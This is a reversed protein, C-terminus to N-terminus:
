AGAVGARDGLMEDWSVERRELIAKRGMLATLTAEVAQRWTHHPRQEVISRFFAAVADITIERRSERQEILSKDRLDDGHPHRWDGEPAHLRYYKRSTEIMGRSGFFQERVDRYGATFKISILWGEIGNPYVFAINHHDTKWDGYRLQYRLGGTGSCKVPHLDGAFWNMTDIGHCDQEVIPGGSYREWKAWNRTRDEESRDPAINQGQASALGGLVWFSTMLKVEGIRGNRVYDRATLYEPSYRQQFGFQITKRTDAKRGVESVRLCGAIDAAAPKECYVHKGAQVAAELHEPHLYVPTSILVADISKDALLERYDRYAPVKDAGPIRSKGRDIRDPYKDCIAAIRANSDRAMFGGVYVGRDGTGIIGFSVASNAQSGFATRSSILLPGAGSLLKRRNM